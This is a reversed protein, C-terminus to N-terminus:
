VNVIELDWTKDWGGVVNTLKHLAMVSSGVSNKGRGITLGPALCGLLQRPYNAIHIEIMSRGPVNQLWWVKAAKEAEDQTMGKAMKAGVIKPSVYKICKFTGADIRKPEGFAPRELIYCVLVREPDLLRGITCEDSHIFRELLLKM